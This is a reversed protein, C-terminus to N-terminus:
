SGDDGPEAGSGGAGGAGGAGGVGDESIWYDGTGAGVGVTVLTGGTPGSVDPGSGDPAGAADLCIPAPSVEVKCRQYGKEWAAETCRGINTASSHRDVIKPDNHPELAFREDPRGGNRGCTVVVNCQLAPGTILGLKRDNEDMIMPKKCKDSCGSGFVVVSALLLGTVVGKV